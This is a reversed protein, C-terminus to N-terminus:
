CGTSNCSTETPTTPCSEVSPLDCNRCEAESVLSISRNQRTFRQIVTTCKDPNTIICRCPCGANNEQKYGKGFEPEEPNEANTKSIFSM